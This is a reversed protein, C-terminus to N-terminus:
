RRGAHEDMRGAMGPLCVIRRAVSRANTLQRPLKFVLEADSNARAFWDRSIDKLTEFLERQMRLGVTVSKVGM